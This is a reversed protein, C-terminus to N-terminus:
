FRYTIGWEYIRPALIGTASPRLPTIGDPRLYSSSSSNIASVSPGNLGSITSAGSWGRITNANKTNFLEWTFEVSQKEGVKFKKRISQDWDNLWPYRGMHGEM